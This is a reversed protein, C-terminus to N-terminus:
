ALAVSITHANIGVFPFMRGIYLWETVIPNRTIQKQEQWCPAKNKLPSHNKHEFFSSVCTDTVCLELIEYVVRVVLNQIAM